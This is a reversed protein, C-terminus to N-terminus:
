RKHTHVIGQSDIEYSASPLEVLVVGPRVLNARPRVDSKATLVTVDVASPWLPQADDDFRMATLRDGGVARAPQLLIFSSPTDFAITAAGATSTTGLTTGQRGWATTGDERLRQAHTVNESVCALFGAERRLTRQRRFRASCDDFAGLDIEAFANGDDAWMRAALLHLTAVYVFLAVGGDPRAAIAPHLAPPVIGGTPRLKSWALQDRDIVLVIPDSEDGRAVLVATRGGPLELRQMGFPGRSDAGFHTRLVALHPRLLPERDLAALTTRLAEGTTPPPRTSAAERGGSATSRCLTRPVRHATAPHPAIPRQAPLRARDNGRGATATPSAGGPVRALLLVAAVLVPVTNARVNKVGPRISSHTGAMRARPLACQPDDVAM